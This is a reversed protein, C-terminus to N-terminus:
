RGPTGAVLFEAIRKACLEHHLVAHHFPSLIRFSMACLQLRRHLLEADGGPRVLIDMCAPGVPGACHDPTYEAYESYCYVCKTDPSLSGM